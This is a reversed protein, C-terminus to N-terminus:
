PHVFFLGLSKESMPIIISGNDLICFCDSFREFVRVFLILVLWVFKSAAPVLVVHDKEVFWYWCM